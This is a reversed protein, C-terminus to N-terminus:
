SDEKHLQEKLADRFGEFAFLQPVFERYHEDITGDALRYKSRDASRWPDTVVWLTGADDVFIGEFSHYEFQRHFPDEVEYFRAILPEPGACANSEEALAAQTDWQPYIYLADCNRDLMLLTGTAADYFLGSISTPGDSVDLHRLFEARKVRGSEITLRYFSLYRRLTGGEWGVILVGADGDWALGEPGVNSKAAYGPPVRLAFSYGPALKGDAERLLRVKTDGSELSVVFEGTQPIYTLDELDMGERWPPVRMATFGQLYADELTARFINGSDDGVTYVVPRLDGRADKERMVWVGSVQDEAAETRGPMCLWWSDSEGIRISGLKFYGGYSVAGAIFPSAFLATVTLAVAVAVSLGAFVATTRKMTM